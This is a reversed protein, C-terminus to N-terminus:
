VYAWSLETSICDTAKSLWLSSISRPRFILRQSRISRRSRSRTRPASKREARHIKAALIASAALQGSGQKRREAYYRELRTPKNKSKRKPKRTLGEVNEIEKYGDLGIFKTRM